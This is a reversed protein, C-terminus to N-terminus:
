RSPDSPPRKVFVSFLSGRVDFDREYNLGIGSITEETITTNLKDAAIVLTGIDYRSALKTLTFDNAPVFSWRVPHHRVVYDLSIAWPAVLLTQDDHELSELIETHVRAEADPGVVNAGLTKAV